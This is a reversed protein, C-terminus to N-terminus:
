KAVYDIDSETEGIIKVVLKDPIGIIMDGPRRIWGQKVCLKKPSNSSTVRVMNDKFQIDVGGIETDVFINKEVEQLKQVYKLKGDVFIEVTSAKLEELNYAKSGLFLFFLLLSIYIALDGKRFYKKNSKKCSRDM